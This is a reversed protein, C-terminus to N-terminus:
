KRGNKLFALIDSMKASAACTSRDAAGYYLMVLDQEKKYILGTPFVVNFTNGVREYEEEPAMAWEDSRAIVKKPNELDLLALGVRYLGGSASMRIGHYVVLWGEETEVPQTGLGVRHCDWMGPRVPLLVEHEGWHVLNPSFSIWIHAENRIIPRHIMAYENRFKKPFLCGDKDEPPVLQGERTFKKFDETLMLSLVPGGRSFSVYIVAFKKYDELFVVRPDELGWKEEAYVPSPELTPKDPIEWNTLGDKSKVLCLYSFGERTEIRCLLYVYGNLEAAAPNFVANIPYPWQEPTLIPNGEYRRFIGVEKMKIM